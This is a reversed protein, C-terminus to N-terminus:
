ESFAPEKSPGVKTVSLHKGVKINNTELVVVLAERDPVNTM